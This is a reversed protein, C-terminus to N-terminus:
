NEKNSLVALGIGIASYLLAVDKPDSKLMLFM